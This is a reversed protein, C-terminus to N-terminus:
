GNSIKIVNPNSMDHQMYLYLNQGIREPNPLVKFTDLQIEEYQLDGQNTQYQNINAVDPDLQIIMM